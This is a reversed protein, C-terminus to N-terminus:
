STKPLSWGRWCRARGRGSAFTAMVGGIATLWLSTPEPVSVRGDQTFVVKGTESDIMSWETLLIGNSDLLDISTLEYTSSYDANLGLSAGNPFIGATVEAYASANFFLDIAQGVVIPLAYAFDGPGILSRTDPNSYLDFYNADPYYGALFDVRATAVGYNSSETGSVHWHFVASAPDVDNTFFTGRTHSGQAALVNYGDNSQANTVNLSVKNRALYFGGYQTQATASVTAGNHTENVTTTIFASPVSNSQYITGNVPFFFADGLQQYGQDASSTYYPYVSPDGSGEFTLAAVATSGGLGFQAVLTACVIWFLKRM